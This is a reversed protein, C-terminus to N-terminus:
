ASFDLVNHIRAFRKEQIIRLGGETLYEDVYADRGDQIANQILHTDRNEGNANLYFYEISDMDVSFGYGAFGNGGAVGNELMWDKALLWSGHGTQVRNVNVGYVTEMPKVLLFSNGWEHIASIIMPSALLLKEQSGYRFAARAFAEFTKKTLVGGADTINTAVVSNLGMTTRVPAGSPGGTLSESASGFLFAANMKEKQEILKKKQERKREGDPAGYVKSAVQTKTFNSASRFIQTYSIKEAPATSKAAPTIAGEEYANGVIRLAATPNIAAVSTGGQARVVTLVDGTVVTVRILEPATTSGNAQPVLFLDGAVFLSGDAVTVTTSGSAAAVTATSNTTWRAVYDDEFWEYRPSDVSRRKKLRMTLTLLPNQNPELMAIQDDVRRVLRTETIAQNTTRVGIVQQAM